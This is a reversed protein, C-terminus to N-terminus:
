EVLEVAAAEEEFVDDPLHVEALEKLQQSFKEPDRSAVLAFVSPDMPALHLLVNIERQAEEEKDLARLARLRKVRANLLGPEEAILPDLLNLVDGFRDQMLYIEALDEAIKARSADKAELAAQYVKVFIELGEETKGNELACAGALVGFRIRHEVSAESLFSTRYRSLSFELHEIEGQVLLLHARQLCLASLDLDGEEILQDLYEFAAEPQLYALFQAVNRLEASKIEEFSLNILPMLGLKREIEFLRKADDRQSEDLLLELWDHSKGLISRAIVIAPRLSLKASGKSQSIALLQKPIEEDVLSVALVYGLDSIQNDAFSGLNLALQLMEEESTELEKLYSLLERVAGLGPIKEQYGLPPFVLRRQFLQYRTGLSESPFIRRYHRACSVCLFANAATLYAGFDSEKKEAWPGDGYPCLGSVLGLCFHSLINEEPHLFKSAGEYFPFPSKPRQLISRLVSTLLVAFSKKKSLFSGGRAILSVEGPLDDSLLIDVELSPEFRMWSDHVFGAIYASIQLCMLEEDESFSHKGRLPRCLLDLIGISPWTFDLKYRERSDLMMEVAKQLAATHIYVEKDIM